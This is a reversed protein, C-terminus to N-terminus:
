ICATVGSEEELPLACVLEKMMRATARVDDYCLTEVTTHMYRLPISLLLTPVGSRSVQVEWADTGTDGGCVEIQYPIGYRRGLEKALAVLRPHLNPGVTLVTGKGIPFINDGSADPTEGHGVDVVIAYDPNAAYAGTKAGRLGVEEQVAILAYVDCDLQVNQLLKLCELMAVVGARDDMYEGALVDGCLSGAPSRFSVMDGVRVLERVRAAPLGVDIAMDEMKAAKDADGPAQLHPPKAGIVGYLPAKGHVTVECAPLIRTDVGGMNTFTLFGRDDIGTVLLGIGDMHADLLVRPANEKGCRRIGIISGLGDRTIEDCYPALLPEMEEQITHEFGSIGGLASLQKLTDTMACM